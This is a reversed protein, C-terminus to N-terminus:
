TTNLKVKPFYNYIPYNAVGDVSNIWLPSDVKTIQGQIEQIPINDNYHLPIWNVGYLYPRSAELQTLAGLDSFRQKDQFLIALLLVAAIIGILIPLIWSYLTM